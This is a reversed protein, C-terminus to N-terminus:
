CRMIFKDFRLRVKYFFLSLSLCLALCVISGKSQSTPFTAGMTVCFLFAFPCRFIPSHIPSPNDTRFPRLQHFSSPNSKIRISSTLYSVLPAILTCPALLLSCPPPTCPGSVSLRQTPLVKAQLWAATWHCGVAHYVRAYESYWM